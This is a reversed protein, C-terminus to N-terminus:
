SGVKCLGACARGVWQSQYALPRQLHQCVCGANVGHSSRLITTDYYGTCDACDQAHMGQLVSTLLLCQDPWVTQAAAVCQRPLMGRCCSGMLGLGIDTCCRHQLVSDSLTWELCQRYQHQPHVAPTVIKRIPTFSQSVPKLTLLERFLSPVGTCASSSSGSTPWCCPHQPLAAQPM